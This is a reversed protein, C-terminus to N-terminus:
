LVASVSQQLAVVNHSVHVYEIRGEQRHNIQMLRGRTSRAGAPPLLTPSSYARALRRRAGNRPKKVPPPSIYVNRTSHPKNKTSPAQQKRQQQPRLRDAVTFCPLRTNALTLMARRRRLNTSNMVHESAAYPAIRAFIHLLMTNNHHWSFSRDVMGERVTLNADAARTEPQRSVEPPNVIM